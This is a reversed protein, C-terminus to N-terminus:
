NDHRYSWCNGNVMQDQLKRCMRFLATSIHFDYTIYDGLAEFADEAKSVDVDLCHTDEGMSEEALKNMHRYFDDLDEEPNLMRSDNDTHGINDDPMELMMEIFKAAM